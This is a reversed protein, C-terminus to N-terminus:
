GPGRQIWRMFFVDTFIFEDNERQILEEKELYKVAKQVSSASGLHHRKLFDSAYIRTGPSVALAELLQRSKTPLADWVAHYAHAERTLVGNVGVEM